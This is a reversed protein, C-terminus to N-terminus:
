RQRVKRVDIVMQLTLDAQIPYEPLGGKTIKEPGRPLGTVDFDVQYDASIAGTKRKAIEQNRPSFNITTTPIGSGKDPDYIIGSKKLTKYESSSM